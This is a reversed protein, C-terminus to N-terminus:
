VQIQRYHFDHKCLIILFCKNMELELVRCVFIHNWTNRDFLLLLTLGIIYNLTNKLMTPQPLLIYQGCRQLSTFDCWRTNQIPCWVIQHHRKQRPAKPFTSYEKMSNSEPGNQSRTTADSLTRDIPLIFSSSMLVTFFLYSISFQIRVLLVTQNNLHITNRYGSWQGFSYLTRWHDLLGPNLGLDLWVLCEFFPVPHVGQEANYSLPYLLDIWPFFYHGEKGRLTTAISFPAEVVTALKKNRDWM